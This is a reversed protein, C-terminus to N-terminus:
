KTKEPGWAPRRKQLFALMGEQADALVANDTMVENARKYATEEELGLQDYFATKGLRITEPSSAKIFQVARWIANTFAQM